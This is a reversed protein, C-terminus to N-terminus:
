AYGQHSREFDAKCNICRRATPYANLRSFSINEGCDICHGYSDNAINQLAHDIEAMTDLYHTEMNISENITANNRNEDPNTPTVEEIGYRSAKSFEENKELQHIIKRQTLIKTKLQQMQHKTLVSTMLCEEEYVM